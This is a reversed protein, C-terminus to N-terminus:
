SKKSNKFVVRYKGCDYVRYLNDLKAHEHETMGEPTNVLGKKRSQKSISKCTRVNYYFYDQRLIAEVQWGAKEWKSSNTLRRDIWSILDGHIVSAYSALKSMGGIINYNFKNVFRTLVIRPDTGRHHRNLTILSVLDNNSYLGYAVKFRGSGLLHYKNLFDIAEAREVVKLVCKRAFIRETNKGLASKIFEKLIEKKELWENDFIHILKFGYKEAIKTKLIHYNPTISLNKECHWFLGDYEIIINKEPVVIDFERFDFFKKETKLGLSEIFDRVEKEGASQYNLNEMNNIYSDQCQKKFTDNKMGNDVGYLEICTNQMKAVYKPDQMPWDVGYRKRNTAKRRINIDERTNKERFTKVRKMISRRFNEPDQKKTALTRQANKRPHTSRGVDLMGRITTTFEGFEPDLFVLPTEKNIRRNPLPALVVVGDPLISNIYDESQYKSQKTWKGM